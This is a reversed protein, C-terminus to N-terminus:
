HTPLFRGLLARMEASNWERAGFALGVAAGGPKVIFTAPLSAVGWARSARQDADLLIPFTLGLGAVYPDLLARPAGRDQSVGLVVLGRGRYQRWLAELTPMEATCPQCWTAWFNVVVLKDRLDALAGVGGGLRPLRLEPTRHGETLEVVGAKEFPDPAPARGGHHGGDESPRRVPLFWLVGGVLLVALAVQL